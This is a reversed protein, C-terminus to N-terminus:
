DFVKWAIFIIVALLIAALYQWSDMLGYHQKIKEEQHKAELSQQM